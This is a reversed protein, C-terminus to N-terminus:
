NIRLHKKRRTRALSENVVIRYLWTSFKSRNRFGRLSNFAKIFADQIADEAENEDKLISIAISFSMDKYRDVLYRFSNIDGELVKQIYIEDM